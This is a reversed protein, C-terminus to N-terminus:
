LQSPKATLSSSSCVAIDKTKYREKVERLWDIDEQASLFRGMYNFHQLLGARVDYGEPLVYFAKQDALGFGNEVDVVLYFLNKAIYANVWSYREWLVEGTKGETNNDMFAAYEQRADLARLEMLSLPKGDANVFYGNTSPDMMVWGLEPDYIESVVHNDNDYPSCPFIYVRRATIGLALCCETMIISKNKCNIGQEPKDLSYELLALSNAAVHNDYDSKHTLKPSMWHLLRKARQFPSGDGAIEDIHYKSILEKYEPCDFHYCITETKGPTFNQNNFLIGCFIDFVRKEQAIEEPETTIIGVM